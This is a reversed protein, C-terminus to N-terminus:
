FAVERLIGNSLSCSFLVMWLIGGSPSVLLGVLTLVTGVMAMILTLRRWRSWLCFLVPIVYPVGAAVGLPISIDIIFIIVTSLIIITILLSNNKESKNM